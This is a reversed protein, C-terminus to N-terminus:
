STESRIRAMFGKVYRANRAIAKDDPVIWKELNKGQVTRYDGRVLGYFNMNHYASLCKGGNWTQRKM